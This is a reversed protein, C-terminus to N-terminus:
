RDITMRRNALILEEVQQLATAETATEVPRGPRADDAVKSREQSFKEIWNHVAKCSLCKGSYVPFVEKLIDNANLGKAWLFACYFAARRYYVCARTAMNIVLVLRQVRAHVDAVYDTM